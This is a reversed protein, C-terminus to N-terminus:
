LLSSQYLSNSFQAPGNRRKTLSFHHYCGRMGWTTNTNKQQLMRAADRSCATGEHGQRSSSAEEEGSSCAHAKTGMSGAPVIQEWFIPLPFQLPSAQPRPGPALQRREPPTPTSLTPAIHHPAATPRSAAPIFAVGGATAGVAQRGRSTM